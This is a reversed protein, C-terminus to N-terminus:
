KRNALYLPSLARLGFCCRPPGVSQGDFARSVDGRRPHFSCPINLRITESTVTQVSNARSNQPALDPEAGGGAAGGAVGGGASFSFFSAGAGLASTGLAALLRTTM